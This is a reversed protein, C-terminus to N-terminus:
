PRQSILIVVIVAVLFWIFPGLKKWATKRDAHDKSIRALEAHLESRTGRWGRTANFLKHELESDYAM